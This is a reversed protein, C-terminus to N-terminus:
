PGWIPADAQATGGDVETVADSTTAGSVFVSAAVDTLSNKIGALVLQSNDPSFGGAYHIVTTTGSTNAVNVALDSRLTTTGTAPNYELPAVHLYTENPAAHNEDYAARTGDRSPVLNLASVPAGGFLLAADGTVSTAPWSTTGLTAVRYTVTDGTQVGGVYTYERLGYLVRITGAASDTPLWGFLDTEFRSGSCGPIQTPMCTSAFSAVTVPDSGDHRRAVIANNGVAGERFALRQQTAPLVAGLANRHASWLGGRAGTPMPFSAVESSAAPNGTPVNRIRIFGLGSTSDEIAMWGDQSWSLPRNSGSNTVQVAGSGNPWAAIVQLSSTRNKGSGTTVLKAFAIRSTFSGGGGPTATATPQSPPKAAIGAGHGQGAHASLTVTTTVLLSAIIALTIGKGTM